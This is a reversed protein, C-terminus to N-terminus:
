LSRMLKMFSRPLLLNMRSSFTHNLTQNLTHNLVHLVSLEVFRAYEARHHEFLVLVLESM